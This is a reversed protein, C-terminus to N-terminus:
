SSGPDRCGRLDGGRGEVAVVAVLFVDDEAVVVMGDDLVHNGSARRVLRESVREAREELTECRFRFGVPIRNEDANLQHV